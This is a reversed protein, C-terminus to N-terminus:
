IELIYTQTVVYLNPSPAMQHFDVIRYGESLLAELNPLSHENVAKTEQPNSVVNVVLVKQM